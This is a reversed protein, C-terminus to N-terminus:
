TSRASAPIEGEDDSGAIWLAIEEIVQKLAVKRTECEWVILVRWGSRRLEEVAKRDRTVNQSIKQLWFEANTKPLRFNGCGEHRHWFCGNVFIV